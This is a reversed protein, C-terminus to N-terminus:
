RIIGQYAEAQNFASKNIRFRRDTLQEAIDANFLKTLSPSNQMHEQSQIFRHPPTKGPDNLVWGIREYDDFFYEQLLPLIKNSFIQSLAAQRQQETELKTLPLLYAHGIMHEADLLVEIRHNIATLLASMDVGHVLTGELLEPHPPTEIFSFRRRLALDMQALSRDATNMTGILYVNGPISFPEQSYPLKTTQQDEAGKRKSPELLTILEGFVRSINGRNIEDIIMVHPKQAAQQPAEPELLQKLKDHDITGPKLEYITMQSLAKKFLREKPLSPTYQRLWSVPRMQLYRSREDPELFQYDGIVEAIARFKHNGDSVIVLDGNKIQNKFVNVATLAYDNNDVSKGLVRELCDRVTQRNDCGSYDTDRGYGLLIQKKELCEEYIYDDDKLTNGLSMKWIKRGELSLPADASQIVTAQANQCLEKFIGDKVSYRLNGTDSDTEPRIGEIFDEYSFSQHFTTFVIQQEEMLKLYHAKLADRQQTPKDHLANYTNEFWDPDAIRVAHLTTIYTKGTGPPGYLIQNLPTNSDANNPNQNLQSEEGEHQNTDERGTYAEVLQILNDLTNITVKVCPNGVDLTSANAALHSNRPSDTDYHKKDTYHTTATNLWEGPSLLLSVKKVDLYLALQLEDDSEFGALYKTPKKVPTLTESNQLYTLADDVTLTADKLETVREWLESGYALLPQSGREAALKLHGQVLSIKKNGVLARLFEGKLIPVVKPNERDQYLFAIKWRITEGLNVSNVVNLDGFRAAQAATIIQALVTKFANEPTDGYKKYWGYESTYGRKNDGTKETTDARSYVGFKFASGDWISCLSETRKELWYIFSDNTGSATYEELTMHKLSDLPWRQLFDDWIQESNGHVTETM